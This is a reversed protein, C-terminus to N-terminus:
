EKLYKHDVECKLDCLALVVCFLKKGCPIKGMYHLLLANLLQENCLFALKKVFTCWAGVFLIFLGNTLINLM